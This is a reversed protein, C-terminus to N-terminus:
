GFDDPEFRVYRLLRYPREFGQQLLRPGPLNLSENEGASVCAACVDARCAIVTAVWIGSDTGGDLEYVSQLLKRWRQLVKGSV